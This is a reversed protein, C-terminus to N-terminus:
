VLIANRFFFVQETTNNVTKICSSTLCHAHQGQKTHRVTPQTTQVQPAIAESTRRLLLNPSTCYSSCFVINESRKKSPWFSNLYILANKTQWGYLESDTALAVQFDRPRKLPHLYVPAYWWTGGKPLNTTIQPELYDGKYGVGRM